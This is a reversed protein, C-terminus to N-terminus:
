QTRELGSMRVLDSTVIATMLSHYTGGAKQAAAHIRDIIPGDSQVLPRGIAFQTLKRALNKKVRESAAMRDLFELTGRFSVTKHQDPFMVEGDERLKNGHEDVLHFAGVGDFKEFAFAYPEFKLHCGGCAPNALRTEAVARRSMGPKPPVPTTDLGPPPSGVRSYLLDNLIFLGRTVMSAEEGGVTLLSGQTLIGGRSPTSTLDYRSLGSVQSRIEEPDLARSYLAVLRFAGKWARDKTIENGLALRFGNSWKSLDAGIDRAAEVEGNVYLSAKGSADRTYAVHTLRTQFRGTAGGLGPMGNDDTGAARFRVDYRDGDQGLTFNRQGTDASLTVIRAPGSQDSAAPTIWAEITVAGAKKVADALRSAPQATAILVPANVTLRGKGWRVKSPDEIVLDLPERAGSTDRVTNGGGEGFTYLAQLSDRSIGASLNPELGYHDALRPTAFTVRANMLSSLPRKQDWVLHKFFALTEERMDGALRDSWRPFRRPDPRLHELRDLDLWERAFQISRQVARPDQLMRRAQAAVQARDSLGGADAARMLERDPPGGWLTYSLRSAMEYAAAPRPKGDSPLAEIRYVFRPSQLMTEILSRAVDSFGGGERAVAQTIRLFGNIEVSQLPGRLLWKGMSAILARQNSESLNRSKSYRGAFAPADIRAAIIEALRAYAEVHALDPKLNYATNTFGDARLDAPLLRLAEAAIDVGLAAKVTEIYEPTTLRRPLSQAHGRNKAGQSKIASGAGTKPSHSGDPPRHKAAPPPQCAAAALFGTLSAAALIPVRNAPIYRRM